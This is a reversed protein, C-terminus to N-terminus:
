YEPQLHLKGADRLTYDFFELIIRNMTEICYRRDVEGTGLTRALAPSFLPLDTFNLHGAGRIVVDYAEPAKASAATNSYATGLRLAEEYHEANYLNLLPIPYPASQLVIRGNEFGIQEGLMTGDVVIVADIDTRERGLQAATAGGLSHGFLGIKDPNILGYVAEPDNQNLNNRIEELVFNMDATRLALWDRTIEYIAAEDDVNNTVDVAENLFDRDVPTISGDAHRVFFAHYSHDISGVVYGNSALNEFTSLNSGRFGFAGHSFLLLTSDGIHEGSAPYWFQVTLKRNEGTGSFSDPRSRDVFTYSKTEVAYPGTREIPAFQPFLIGPLITIVLLICGSLCSVVAARGGYEKEPRPYRLFYLLSFVAWVTLLSFLGAWRFSWRYVGTLLLLSFGAFAAIRAIHKVRTQRNKTVMQYVFFTIRAALAVILTIIGLM